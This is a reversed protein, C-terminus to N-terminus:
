RSDSELEKLRDAQRIAKAERDYRDLQDMFLSIALCSRFIVERIDFYKNTM